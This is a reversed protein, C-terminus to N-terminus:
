SNSATGCAGFGSASVGASVMLVSVALTLAMVESSLARRRSLVASLCSFRSRISSRFCISFLTSDLTCVAKSAFRISAAGLSVVDAMAANVALTSERALRKPVDDVCRVEVPESIGTPSPRSPTLVDAASASDSTHTLGRSSVGDASLSLSVNSLRKLRPLRLANSLAPGSIFDSTVFPDSARLVASGTYVTGRLAVRIPDVPM